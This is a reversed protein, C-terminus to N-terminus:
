KTIQKRHKLLMFDLNSKQEDEYHHYHDAWLATEVTWSFICTIKLQVHMKYHLSSTEFQYSGSQAVSRHKERESKRERGGERFDIKPPFFSLFCIRM